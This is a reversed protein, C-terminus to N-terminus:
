HEQQQRHLLYLKEIHCKQQIAKGYKVISITAFNKNENLDLIRCIEFSSDAKKICIDQVKPQLTRKFNKSRSSLKVSIIFLLNKISHYIHEKLLLNAKM